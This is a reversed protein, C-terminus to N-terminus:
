FAPGPIVGKLIALSRLDRTCVGHYWVSRDKRKEPRGRVSSIHTDVRKVGGGNCTQFAMKWGGFKYYEVTAFAAAPIELPSRNGAAIVQAAGAVGPLTTQAFFIAAHKKGEYFAYDADSPERHSQRDLAIAAADLHESHCPLLADAGDARDILEDTSYVHDDSNFLPTYDRRLRAEVAEPLSRTVVVKPKSGM